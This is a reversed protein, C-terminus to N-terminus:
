FTIEDEDEYNKRLNFFGVINIKEKTHWYNHYYTQDEESWHFIGDSYDNYYFRHDETIELIDGNWYQTYFEGDGAEYVIEVSYLDSAEYKKLEDLSHWLKYEFFDKKNSNKLDMYRSMLREQEVSREKIKQLIKERKM